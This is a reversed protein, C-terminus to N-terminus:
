VVVLWPVERDEEKRRWKRRGDEDGKEEMKEDGKLCGGRKERKRLGRTV